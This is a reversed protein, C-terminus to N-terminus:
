CPFPFLWGLGPLAALGMSSSLDISIVWDSFCFSFFFSHFFNISGLRHSVVLCINNVYAYHFDWFSFLFPFPPFSYKFFYYSFVDLNSALCLGCMGSAWNVGILLFELFICVLVYEIAFSGFYLPFGQFLLLFTVLWTCPFRLLILLQNRM